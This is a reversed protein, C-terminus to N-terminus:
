NLDRLVEEVIGDASIGLRDRFDEHSGSMVAFRDQVGLRILRTGAGADALVEAVAGGLGAVVTHEEITVLLRTEEAGRLIADRDLPKITHM